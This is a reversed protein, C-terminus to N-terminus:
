NFHLPTTILYASRAQGSSRKRPVRTRRKLATKFMPDTRGRGPSRVTAGTEIPPEEDSLLEHSRIGFHLNVVAVNANYECSNPCLEAMQNRIPPVSTM